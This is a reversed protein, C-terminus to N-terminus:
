KMSIQRYYLLFKYADNQFRQRKADPQGDDKYDIVLSYDGDLFFSHSSEIDNPQDFKEIVKILYDNRFYYIRTSKSRKDLVVAKLLSNTV